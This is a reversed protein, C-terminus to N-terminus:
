ISGGFHSRTQTSSMALFAFINNVQAGPFNKISYFGLKPFGPINCVLTDHYLLVTTWLVIDIAMNCCFFSDIIKKKMFFLVPFGFHKWTDSKLSAVADVIQGVKDSEMEVKVRCALPACLIIPVCHGITM